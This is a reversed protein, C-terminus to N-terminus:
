LKEKNIKMNLLWIEVIQCNKVEALSILYIKLRAIDRFAAFFLPPPWLYSEAFKLALAFPNRALINVMAKSGKQAFMPVHTPRCLWSGALVCERIRVTWDCRRYGWFWHRVWYYHPKRIKQHRKEFVVTYMSSSYWAACSFRQDPCCNTSHWIM